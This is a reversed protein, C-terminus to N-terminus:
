RNNPFSAMALSDSLNPLSSLAQLIEWQEQDLMVSGSELLQDMEVLEEYAILEQPSLNGPIRDFTANPKIFFIVLLAAVAALPLTVSTIKWSISIIERKRPANRIDRLWTESKKQFESSPHEVSTAAWREITENNWKNKM